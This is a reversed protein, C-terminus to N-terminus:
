TDKVAQLEQDRSSVTRELEEKATRLAKLNEEKTKKKGLAEELLENAESAEKPAEKPVEKPTEPAKPAEPIPLSFPDDKQETQPPVPATVPIIEPIQVPPAAVPAKAELNKKIFSLPDAADVLKSSIAQATMGGQPNSSIGEGSNM